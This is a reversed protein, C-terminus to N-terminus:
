HVVNDATFAVVTSAPFWLAVRGEDENTVTGGARCLCEQCFCLECTARRFYNPLADRLSVSRGPTGTQQGRRARVAGAALRAPMVYKRKPRFNAIGVVSATASCRTPM